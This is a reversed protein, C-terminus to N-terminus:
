RAKFVTHRSTTTTTAAAVIDTAPAMAVVDETGVMDLKAETREIAGLVAEATAAAMAGNAVAASM